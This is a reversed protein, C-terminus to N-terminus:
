NPEIQAMLQTLARGLNLEGKPGSSDALHPSTDATELLLRTLDQARYAVGQSDLYSIMLALSGTVLPATYSTGRERSSFGTSTLGWIGADPVYISVGPGHNSYSARRGWSTSSGVIVIGEHLDPIPELADRSNAASFVLITNFDKVVELAAERINPEYILPRECLRTSRSFCDRHIALSINIVRAGLYALERIQNAISGIDARNGSLYNIKRYIFKGNKGNLGAIGIENNSKAAMIGLVYQGHDLDRRDSSVDSGKLIQGILDPHQDNAHDADIVGIVVPHELAQTQYLLDYAVDAHIREFSSQRSFFPDNFGKFFSLDHNFLDFSLDDIIEEFNLLRRAEDSLRTPTVVELTTTPEVSEAALLSKDLPM